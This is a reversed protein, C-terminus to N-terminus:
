YAALMSASRAFPTKGESRSSIPGEWMAPLRRKSALAVLNKRQEYFFPDAAVIIADTGAEALSTEPAGSANAVHLRLGFLGAANQIQMLQSEASPNFPNILAGVTAIKPVMEQLLGFRKATLEAAFM